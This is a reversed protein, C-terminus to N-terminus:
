NEEEPSNPNPTRHYYPVLMQTIGFFLTDKDGSELNKTSIESYKTHLEQLLNMYDQAQQRTLVLEYNNVDMQIQERALVGEEKEIKVEEFMTEMSTRLNRLSNNILDEISQLIQSLQGQRDESEDVAMLDQSVSINMACVQFHKEIIGSVIQTDGVVLLDHEELLNVHYYLKTPPMGLLKGLQKVTCREGKRNLIGVQKLIDLRLPDSLAKLTELDTIEMREPIQLEDMM